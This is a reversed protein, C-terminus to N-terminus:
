DDSEYEDKTRLEKLKDDYIFWKRTYSNTIFVMISTLILAIIVWTLPKFYIPGECASKVAMFINALIMPVMILHVKLAFIKRKENLKGM